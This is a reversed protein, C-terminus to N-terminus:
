LAIKIICAEIVVMTMNGVFCTRHNVLREEVRGKINSGISIEHVEQQNFDKVQSGQGAVVKL